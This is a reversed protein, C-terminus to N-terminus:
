AASPLNSTSPRIPAQARRPSPASGWSFRHAPLLRDIWPVAPACLFLAWILANPRHLGFQIGGAVLAVLAAFVVRGSRADPTTKPDSIMLFAFILFAGSQLQHLPITWPDGLWAARGFLVLGWAGLFAWTVDSRTARHVVLGGLGALLFAFFAASGWQGPSVWVRDSALMAVALGFNTPNFVHKGRRRIAFKSAITGAAVAAALWPSAARLLLILSLSSILASKPDFRPLGVLRTAVLQAALATGLIAAADVGDVEFGLGVVGYALLGSLISIQYVRPDRM